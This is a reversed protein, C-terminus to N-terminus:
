PCGNKVGPRTAIEIKTSAEPGYGHRWWWWAYENSDTGNGTFSPRPTLVTLRAPPHQKHFSNRKLSGFWNLPLLFVAVSGPGYFELAKLTHEVFELSQSYPPNSVFLAPGAFKTYKAIADESEGPYSGGIWSSEFSYMSDLTLDEFKEVLLLDPRYLTVIGEPDRFEFVERAAAGIRGDGAGLDVIWKPTPMSFSLRSTLEDICWHPTSYRDRSPGRSGKRTSSM